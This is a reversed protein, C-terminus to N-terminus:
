AVKSILIVLFYKGNNKAANELPHIELPGYM